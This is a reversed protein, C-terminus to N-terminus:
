KLSDFPDGAAGDRSLSKVSAPQASVSKRPLAARRAPRRLRVATGSPPVLVDEGLSSRLLNALDQAESRLSGSVNNQRKLDTLAKTSLRLGSVAVISNALRDQPDRQLAELANTIAEGYSAREFKIQSMRLWPTKDAPFSNAAGKLIVLAENLQGSKAAVDADAMIHDLTSTTAKDAINTDNTACAALLFVYGICPLLTRLM